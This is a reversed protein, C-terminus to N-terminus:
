KKKKEGPSENKQQLYLNQIRVSRDKVEKAFVQDESFRRSKSNFRRALRLNGEKLYLEALCNVYFPSDPFRDLKELLVEIAEKRQEAKIVYSYDQFSSNYNRTIYEKNGRVIFFVLDKRGFFSIDSRVYRDDDMIDIGSFGLFFDGLEYINFQVDLALVLGFMMELKGNLYKVRGATKESYSKNRIYLEEKAADTTGRLEECHELFNSYRDIFQREATNRISCSGNLAVGLTSWTYEYNFYNAKHYGLLFMFFSDGYLEEKEQLILKGFKTFTERGLIIELDSSLHAVSLYRKEKLFRIKQIASLPVGAKEAKKLSEQSLRYLIKNETKNTIFMGMGTSIKSVQVGAGLGGGVQVSLIDGLDNGRDKWYPLSSCQCILLFPLLKQLHLLRWIPKLPYM